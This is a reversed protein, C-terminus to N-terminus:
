LIVIISCMNKNALYYWATSSVVTIIFVPIHIGEM